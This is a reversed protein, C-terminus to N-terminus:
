IGCGRFFMCTSRVILARSLLGVSIKPKSVNIRKSVVIIVSGPLARKVFSGGLIKICQVELIGCNDAVQLRTLFSVM